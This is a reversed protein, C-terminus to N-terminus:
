AVDFLAPSAYLPTIVISLGLVTWNANVLPDSISLTLFWCDPHKADLPIGMLDSSGTRNAMSKTKVMAASCEMGGLLSIDLRYLQQYRFPKTSLTPKTNTYGNSLGYGSLGIPRFISWEKSIISLSTDLPPM